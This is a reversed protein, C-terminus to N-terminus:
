LRIDVLAIGLRVNPSLAHFVVNSFYYLLLAVLQKSLIFISLPTTPKASAVWAAAV